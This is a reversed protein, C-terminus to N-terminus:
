FRSEATLEASGFDVTYQDITEARVLVRVQDMKASAEAMGGWLRLRLETGDPSIAALDNRSEDLGLERLSDIPRHNLGRPGNGSLESGPAFVPYKVGADGLAADTQNLVDQSVIVGLIPRGFALVLEEPRAHGNALDFHLLYVDVREGAAVVYQGTPGQPDWPHEPNFDVTIDQELVFGQQELFVLLADAERKDQSLDGSVRGLWVANTGAFGPRMRADDLDAVFRKPEFAVRKALGTTDALMAQGADVARRQIAVDTKNQWAVEVQGDLVHVVTQREETADVGFRTGLDTVEMHPTRVVFGKSSKTECIGMLKGANLRITNSHNILEITAPAELIAVAGRQTTIEAFGATLTLTQGARLQSGPALAGEASQWTANHEATLTAVVPKAIPTHDVIPPTDSPTNPRTALFVILAATVVLSAAVGAITGVRAKLAQTVAYGIVSCAQQFSISERDTDANKAVFAESCPFPIPEAAEEAELLSAFIAKADSQRQEHAILRDILGYEALIRPHKPDASLWAEMAELTEPLADGNFYAELLTKEDPTLSM